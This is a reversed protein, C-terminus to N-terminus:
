ATAKEPKHCVEIFAIGLPTLYLSEYATPAAVGEVDWGSTVSRASDILRMRHLDAAMLTYEADDLSTRKRIAERLIPLTDHVNRLVVRRRWQSGTAANSDADTTPSDGKLPLKAIECYVMYMYDLLVVHMPTLQRLIEIYGPLIEQFKPTAANALLAAWKEQLEPQDQLSAHELIPLLIRGPVPQPEIGADNLLEGASLLTATARQHRQEVWEKFALGKADAAPGLIREVLSKVLEATPKGITALGTIIVAGTTPDM